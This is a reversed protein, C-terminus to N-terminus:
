IKDLTDILRIDYINSNSNYETNDINLLIYYMNHLINEYVLNIEKNYNDGYIDKFIMMSRICMCEGIICTIVLITFITFYLLYNLINKYDLSFIFFLFLNGSIIILVINSIFMSKTIIYYTSFRNDVTNYTYNNFIIHNLLIIDIQDYRIPKIQSSKNCMTNNNNSISSHTNNLTSYVNNNVSHTNYLISSLTNNNSISNHINYQINSISSQTNYLTNHNNSICRHTNYRINSETNYTYLVKQVSVKLIQIIYMISLGPIKYVKKYVNHLLYYALKIDWPKYPNTVLYNGYLYGTYLSVLLYMFTNWILCICSFINCKTYYIITYTSFLYLYSFTYSICNINTYLNSLFINIYTNYIISLKMNYYVNTIFFHNYISIYIIICIIYLVKIGIINYAILLVTNLLKSFPMSCISLTYGSLILYIVCLTYLLSHIVTNYVSHTFIFSKKPTHQPTHQTNM